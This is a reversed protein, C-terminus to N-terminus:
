FSIGVCALTPSGISSLSPVQTWSEARQQACESQEPPESTESGRPGEFCRASWDQQALSHVLWWGTHSAFLM